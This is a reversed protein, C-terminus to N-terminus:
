PAGRLMAEIRDAAADKARALAEYSEIGDKMEHIRNVMQTADERAWAAEKRFENVQRELVERESQEM